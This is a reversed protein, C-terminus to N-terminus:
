LLQGFYAAQGSVGDLYRRQLKGLGIVSKWTETGPKVVIANETQRFAVFLPAAAPDHKIVAKLYQDLRSKLCARICVDQAPDNV